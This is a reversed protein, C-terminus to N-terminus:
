KKFSLPYNSDTKEIYDILKYMMIIRKKESREGALEQIIADSGGLRALTQIMLPNSLIDQNRIAMAKKHKEELPKKEALYKIAEKYDLTVNAEAKDYAEIGDDGKKMYEVAPHQGIKVFRNIIRGAIPIDLVKELTTTIENIDNSKFKYFGQGTYTNAFWKLIAIHKRYGGAKETIPDVAKQGRWEDYPTGGSLYTLVDSVLPIAPNLSPTGTSGLYGFMDAPTELMGAGKDTDIVSMFKYLMGNILRSTEDQPIRFYVVRGDPTTGLVIPIYNIRDWESIGYHYMYGLSSGLLGWEMTKQLVKPLVNYAIFKGGVSKPDEKFRTIDARWGEKFANSYLLLNNTLPNLRGQRLFNPSGVESQIRLMLEKDDMKIKGRKIQDKLFLIGGIKPVREFMRAFNGLKDFLDKFTRKFLNDLNGEKKVEKALLKELMYTDADLGKKIAESGAQGRYGEVMSILFGEEEMWRTLQTGDKFISKYSPIVAKFYYKLLANKGLKALDLYRANPLLKVSRSIDRTLNIPWFAPNYETFFKRFVDGTRTMIQFAQVQNYPNSKFSEAIYKNVFWNELKGNRMFSVLEMGQPPSELRGEGIYKPKLIIKDKPKDAGRYTELWSKNELLWDITNKIMKHRRAEILLLMDKEMTAAFVDQISDFSGKSSKLYRTAIANSGFKELRKLLYKKVNFTIYKINDELIKILGADYMGSEKIEPIIMRQRVEYFKDTIRLLEPNQEAFYKFIDDINRINLKEALEKSYKRIGLSNVLGERQSSEAINRLFLMTSIDYVDYGLNEAERIVHKHMEDAYRKLKAHRYRYNEISWQLEKAFPSHWREKGTGGLRRYVWWYNDILEQGLHDVVDPKWEKEAKNFIEKNVDRFMKNINKIVPAYRADGGANLEMQINEWQAKVEPKSEIYHKWMEYTRPANHKVWNPRLLWAMMFDAMLERPGDRYQTYKPDASRDFPKWKMSLTKLEQTIWEKNVLGREKIEREFMQKFITNAEESLKPDIKKGNIRDAIVQLHHSMMGKMADKVVEKKLSDSLKAFADYFAPDIKERANADRFIQLITEPTIKLDEVIEKNTTKENEKAIKEAQKKLNAIEKPDLPKAGDNKGAIWKNMYGKLSAISGLINGRKLTADPLYDILHGLEHAFTMLFQEPDKQLAENIVIRPSKKGKFQFYGNLGSRMKNIEPSKDLFVKYMEVLDILDLGKPSNFLRKWGANNEGVTMEPATYPDNPIGWNDGDRSNSVRDFHMGDMDSKSKHDRFYNQAQSLLEGDIRRPMLLAVVNNTEPHLFVLPKEPSNAVLKAKKIKGDKDTFKILENYAKRSFSVYQNGIRGVMTDIKLASKGGAKVAFVVSVKKHKSSLGQFVRNILDQATKFEGEYRVNKSELIKKSLKPYFKNNVLLIGNSSVKGDLSTIKTRPGLDNLAEVPTSKYKGTEDIIFAGDKDKTLELIDNQYVGEERKDKFTKDEKNEIRIKNNEIKIEIEKPDIKRVESELVPITEGNQKEIILINNNGVAEKGVIKGQETGAVNINVIENTKHKPPPLLKINSQKELGQFVTKSGQEYINPIQNSLIQDRYVGNEESMKVVDRPHVAYKTYIDKITSVGKISGHIGFILVAAHAFDRASPVHGELFSALTTMTVVETGLRAMTSGTMKQVKAGAGFTAGGVIASKGATYVTKMDMFHDFWGKINNVEGANIARMYSDRMVEPLAFGGAGCVVPAGIGGAGGTAGTAAFCGAAMWPLDNVLTVVGQAVEKGFSQNQYMFINRYLEQIEEPKVYGQKALKETYNQHFNDILGNVSVDYGNSFVNYRGRGGLGKVITKGIATKELAKATPSDSAFFAMQPTQYKYLKGWADFYKNVRADLEPLDALKYNGQEDKEYKSHWHQRYLQKMADVNGKAIEKLLDDTGVRNFKKSAPMELLYAMALARQQDPNLTTVDKHDYFKELWEPVQFSPDYRKLRNVYRNAAVVSSNKTIQFFGAATSNPNIINRNDSEVASLFSFFENFAIVQYDSLGYSKKATELMKLTNSGTTIVTDLIQPYKKEQEKIFNEKSKKDVRIAEANVFDKDFVYRLEKENYGVKGTLVDKALEGDLLNPTVDNMANEAVSLDTDNLFASQDYTVNPYYNEMWKSIYGVRGQGDEKFLKYAEEIKSSINKKDEEKLLEFSTKAKQDTQISKNQEVNNKTQEETKTQLLSKTGLPEHNPYISYTNKQLEDANVSISTTPMVGYEKNIEQDSFGAQKLIPRQTQIYEKIYEDDFGAQKLQIATLRM